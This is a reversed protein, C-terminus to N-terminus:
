EDRPQGGCCCNKAVAAESASLASLVVQQGSGAHADNFGPSSFAPGGGDEAVADLDDAAFGFAM